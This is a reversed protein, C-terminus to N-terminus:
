CAPVEYMTSGGYFVSWEEYQLTFLPLRLARQPEISPANAHRLPAPFQLVGSREGQGGRGNTRCLATASATAGRLSAPLGTDVLPCGQM